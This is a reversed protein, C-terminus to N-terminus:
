KHGHNHFGTDSDFNRQQADLYMEEVIHYTQDIIVMM